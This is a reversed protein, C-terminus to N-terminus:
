HNAESHDDHGEEDHDHVKLNTCQNTHFHNVHWWKLNFKTAKRLDTGAESLLVAVQDKQNDALGTLVNPKNAALKIQIPAPTADDHHYSTLINAYFQDPTQEVGTYGTEMVFLFCNEQTIADTGELALLTGEPFNEHDHPGSAFTFHSFTLLILVAFSRIM